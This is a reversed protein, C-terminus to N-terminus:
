MVNCLIVYNIYHVNHYTSILKYCTTIKAIKFLIFENMCYFQTSFNTYHLRLDCPLVKRAIIVELKDFEIRFFNGNHAMYQASCNNLFTHKVESILGHPHNCALFLLIVQTHMNVTYKRQTPFACSCNCRSFM